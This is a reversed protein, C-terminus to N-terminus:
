SVRTAQSWRTWSSHESWYKIDYVLHDEAHPVIAKIPQSRCCGLFGCYEANRLVVHGCASLGSSVPSLAYLGVIHGIITEPLVGATGDCCLPCCAASSM